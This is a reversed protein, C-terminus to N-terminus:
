GAPMQQQFNKGHPINDVGRSLEASFGQVFCARGTSNGETGTAHPPQPRLTIRATWREQKLGKKHARPRELATKPSLRPTSDAM